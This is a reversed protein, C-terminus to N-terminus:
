YWEPEDPSDREHEPHEEDDDFPDKPREGPRINIDHREEDQEEYLTAGDGRPAVPIREPWQTRPM